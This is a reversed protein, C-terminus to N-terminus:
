TTTIAKHLLRTMILLIVLGMELGAKIMQQVESSQGTFSWQIYGVNASTLMKDTGGCQM